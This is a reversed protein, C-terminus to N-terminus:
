NNLAGDDIWRKILLQDSTSLASGGLPMRSGFPPSNTTKLYLNSGAGNASDVTTGSNAVHNVIASYSTMPFGSTASNGHCSTSSTACSRVLLSNVSTFTASTDNSGSDTPTSGSDSCSIFLSFTLFCGLLLNLSKM